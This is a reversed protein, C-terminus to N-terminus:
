SPYPPTVRGKVFVEPRMGLKKTCSRLLAREDRELDRARVREGDRVCGRSRWRVAGQINEEANVFGRLCLGNLNRSM